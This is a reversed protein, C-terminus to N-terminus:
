SMHEAAVYLAMVTKVGTEQSLMTETMNMGM